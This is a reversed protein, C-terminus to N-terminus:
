IIGSNDNALEPNIEQLQENIMRSLTVRYEIELDTLEPYIELLSERLTLMEGESMVYSYVEMEEHTDLEAYVRKSVGSVRLTSFVQYTLALQPPKVQLTSKHIRVNERTVTKATGQPREFPVGKLHKNDNEIKLKSEESNIKSM